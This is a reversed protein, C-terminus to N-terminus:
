APLNVGDTYIVCREIFNELEPVNGPWPASVLAEMAPKSVTRIRKQM